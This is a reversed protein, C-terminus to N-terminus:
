NYNVYCSCSCLFFYIKCNHCLKLIQGLWMLIVPVIKPSLYPISSINNLCADISSWQGTVGSVLQLVIVCFLQKDTDVKCFQIHGPQGNCVLARTRPDFVFALVLGQFIEHVNFSTSIVRVAPFSVFDHGIMM